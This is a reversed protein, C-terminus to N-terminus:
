GQSRKPPSVRAHTRAEKQISILHPLFVFKAGPIEEDQRRPGYSSPVAQATHQMSKLVFSSRQQTFRHSCHHSHIQLRYFNHDFAIIYTGYLVSLAYLAVPDGYECRQACRRFRDSDVRHLADTPMSHLTHIIDECSSVTSLLIRGRSSIHHDMVQAHRGM